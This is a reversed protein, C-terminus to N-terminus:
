EENHGSPKEFSINIVTGENEVKVGIPLNASTLTVSVNQGISSGDLNIPYESINELLMPDGSILVGTIDPTAIVNSDGTVIRVVIPVLKKTSISVKVTVDVTSYSVINGDYSIYDGNKDCFSLQFGSYTKSTEYKEDPIRFKSTEITDLLTRPGSIEIYEINKEISYTYQPNLTINGAIYEFPVTKTANVDAYLRVTAPEATALTITSGEPVKVSIPMNHRGAETIHSVDISASYDGKSFKKLDKNSGKVTIVVEQRDVGYIMMNSTARLEDEGEVVIPITMTSIIGTDNLNVMYMWILLAIVFCIIMPVIDIKKRKPANAVSVTQKGNEDVESIFDYQKM